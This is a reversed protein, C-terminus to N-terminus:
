ANLTPRKKLSLASSYFRRPPVGSVLRKPYCVHFYTSEYCRDLAPCFLCWLKKDVTIYTCLRMHGATETQSKHVVGNVTSHDRTLFYSVKQALKLLPWM